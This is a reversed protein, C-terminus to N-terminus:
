KEDMIRKRHEEWREEEYPTLPEISTADKLRNIVGYYSATMEKLDYKLAENEATLTAVKARLEPLEYDWKSM